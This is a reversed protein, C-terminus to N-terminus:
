LWSAILGQVGRSHCGFAKCVRRLAAFRAARVFIHSRRWARQIAVASESGFYRRDVFRMNRRHVADFAAAWPYAVAAETKLRMRIFPVIIGETDFVVNNTYSAIMDQTGDRNFYDYIDGYGTIGENGSCTDVNFHRCHPFLYQLSEHVLSALFDHHSYVVRPGIIHEDNGEENDFYFSEARLIDITDVSDTERLVLCADHGGNDMHYMDLYVLLLGQCDNSTAVWYQTQWPGSNNVCRITFPDTIEPDTLAAFRNGHTWTANLDAFVTTLIDQLTM